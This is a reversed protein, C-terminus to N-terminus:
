SFYIMIFFILQALYVHFAFIPSLRIFVKMRFGIYAFLTGFVFWALYNQLPVIGIEWTWYKLKIAAPEMFADFLMMLVGVVFAKWFNRGTLVLYLKTRQFLALSALLTSLWAFGIAIPVGGLKISLLPGYKYEGFVLGTDHGILEILFGSLVIIISYSLFNKREEKTNKFYEYFTFIAVFVILYQAFINSLKTFLDLIQWLGGFFLLFYLISEKYYKKIFQM